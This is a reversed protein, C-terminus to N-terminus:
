WRRFTQLKNTQPRLYPLTSMLTFPYPLRVDIYRLHARRVEVWAAAIGLLKAAEPNPVSLVLIRCMLSTSLEYIYCSYDAKWDYGGGSKMLLIQGKNGLIQLPADVVNSFAVYPLGLLSADLIM